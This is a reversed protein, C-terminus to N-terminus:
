RKVTVTGGSKVLQCDALKAVWELALELKMESVKLSISRKAVEPDVAIKAGKGRILSDLFAVADALPTDTFEFSVKRALAQNLADSGSGGGLQDKLGQVLDKLRSQAEPDDARNLAAELIPLAGAGAGAIAKSAAERTNFEDSSLNAIAEEVAKAQEATLKALAQAPKQASGPTEKSIFYGGNQVFVEAGALAVLKGLAERMPLDTVTLSVVQREDLLGRDIVITTQALQRLFAVAEDLPIDTFEFSVKKAMATKMEETEADKAEKKGEDKAAKPKEAVGRGPAVEISGISAGAAQAFPAALLGLGFCFIATRTFRM